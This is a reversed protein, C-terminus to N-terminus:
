LAIIKQLNLRMVFKNMPLVVIIYFDKSNRDYKLIKRPRVQINKQFVKGALEFWDTSLENM